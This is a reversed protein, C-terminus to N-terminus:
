RRFRLVNDNLEKEKAARKFMDQVSENELMRAASPRVYVEVQAALLQRKQRMQEIVQRPLGTEFAWEDVADHLAGKVARKILTLFMPQNEGETHSSPYM